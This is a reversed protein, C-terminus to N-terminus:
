PRVETTALPLTAIFDAGGSATADVRIMGGAATVTQRVLALGLGMEKVDTRVESSAVRLELTDDEVRPAVIMTAGPSSVDIAHQLLNYVVHRLVAAPLQVLRPAGSLDTQIRTRSAANSQELFTAADGVITGLSADAQTDREPRYTEYLRKTVAGIRAIEREIAAVSAYHPHDAPVLDKILLFSYQIGALPNNIEHAVWAAIGGLAALTELGRMAADARRRAVAERAARKGLLLAAAAIGCLAGVTVTAVFAGSSISMPM